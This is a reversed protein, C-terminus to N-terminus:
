ASTMWFLLQKGATARRGAGESCGQHWQQRVPPPSPRRLFMQDPDSDAASILGALGWRVDPPQQTGFACPFGPPPPRAPASPHHQRAPRPKRRRRRERRAGQQGGPSETPLPQSRLGKFIFLWTQKPCPPRLRPREAGQPSFTSKPGRAQRITAVDRSM